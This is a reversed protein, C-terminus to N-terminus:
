MCRPSGLYGVRHAQTRAQKRAHTAHEQKHHMANGTSYCRATNRTAPLQRATRHTRARTSPCPRPRSVQSASLVSPGHVGGPATSGTAAIMPLVNGAHAGEAGVGGRTTGIPPLQFLIRRVAGAGSGAGAEAGAGAGAGAEAGAGAGAGAGADDGSAGTALPDLRAALALTSDMADAMKVVQRKVQRKVFVFQGAALRGRLNYPM